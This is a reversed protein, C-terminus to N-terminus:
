EDSPKIIPIDPQALARNGMELYLGSFPDFLARCVTCRLLSRATLFEGGDPFAHTPLIEKQYKNGCRCRFQRYFADLKKQEGALENEYGEIAKRVQTPTLTVYSM